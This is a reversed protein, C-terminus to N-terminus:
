ELGREWLDHEDLGILHGVEHMLTIGIQEILEERTRAFRELNRQYLVISAPFHDYPNSVSREGVPTGRFVGLISPSLPPDSSTLDEDSPIPEVAITANEIYPKVDRPLRAIADEVARDFEEDDLRVPAFFEDPALEQARKLYRAASRTDGRRECILGLYHHAWPEDPAHLLLSQLAREAEDFRCLEFLAIARELRADVSDPVVELAQDLIRVARACEGLQNLATGELLLFEFKLEPDDKRRALKHGKACLTLGREVCARDDGPHCILLDAFGLLIEPDDPALAAAREYAQQAAEVDGLELLAAGRFHHAIANKPDSALARDALSLADAYRGEDFATAAEDLLPQASDGSTRTRSSRAM